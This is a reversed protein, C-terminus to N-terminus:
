MVGEVASIEGVTICFVDTKWEGVNEIGLRLTFKVLLLTCTFEEDTRGSDDEEMENLMLLVDATGVMVGENMVVDCESKMCVVEINEENPPPLLEETTGVTDVVLLKEFVVIDLVVTEGTNEAFEECM